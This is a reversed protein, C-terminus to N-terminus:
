NYAEELFRTTNTTWRTMYVHKQYFRLLLFTALVVWSQWGDNNSSYKVYIYIM